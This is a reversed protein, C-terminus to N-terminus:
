NDVTRRLSAICQTQVSDNDRLSMAAIVNEGTARLAKNEYGCALSACSASLTV